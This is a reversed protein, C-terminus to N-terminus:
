WRSSRAARFLVQLGVLPATLAETIVVLPQVNGPLCKDVRRHSSEHYSAQSTGPIQWVTELLSIRPFGCLGPRIAGLGHSAVGKGYSRQPEAGRNTACM